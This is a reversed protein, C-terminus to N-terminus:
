SREYLRKVEEKRRLIEDFRSCYEYPYKYNFIRTLKREGGFCLKTSAGAGVALITQTEDMIYVNYYGERGPRAYGTNDLNDVAGKQRYLYYPRYGAASLRKRAEDVMWGAQSRRGFAEDGGAAALASSRKRTLTHVTVNEPSLALVRDLTESFGDPGDGPLGAILDMNINDFGAGRALWFARETDAATHRRGIARLVEDRMTQPNVSLRTAGAARIVSLKEEDITDPRGAEVTYELLDGREFSEDVASFLTKMQEASIATPTGGGFYICRLRLGLEKAIQGTARIEEALLSVYEPILKKSREVDQSVFSCYSCRSPCFPVSVYLSFSDPTNKANIQAEVAQISLALDIMGDEVLYRGKFERHIEERTLGQEVARHFLKVPRVGTLVGWRPRIKTKETLLEFMLRALSLEKEQEDADGPLSAAAGCREGNLCLRVSLPGAGAAPVASAFLFDGDAPPTDGRETEVSPFFLGAVRELEYVSVLRNLILKM